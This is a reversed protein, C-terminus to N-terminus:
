LSKTPMRLCFTSGPVNGYLMKLIRLLNGIKYETYNKAKALYWVNTSRIPRVPEKCGLHKQKTNHNWM